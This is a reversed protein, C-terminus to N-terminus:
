RPVLTLELRVHKVSAPTGLVVFVLYNGGTLSTMWNTLTSSSNTTQNSLHPYAGGSGNNVISNGTMSTYLGSGLASEQIDFAISGTTGDTSIVAWRTVTANAPIYVSAITGSPIVSNGTITCGRTTSLQNNGGSQGTLSGGLVANGEFGLSLVTINESGNNVDFNLQGTGPDSISFGTSSFNVSEVDDISNGGMNIDATFSTASTLISGDGFRVSGGDMYIDGGGTGTGSNMKLNTGQLFLGTQLAEYYTYQFTLSGAVRQSDNSGGDTVIGGVDNLVVSLGSNPLTLVTGSSSFFAGCAESSGDNGQFFISIPNGNTPVSTWIFDLTGVPNPITVSTVTEEDVIVPTSMSDISLGKFYVAGPSQSSGLTMWGSVAVWGPTCNISTTGDPSIIESRSIGEIADALAEDNALLLSGGPGTTPVTYVGLKYLVPTPPTPM